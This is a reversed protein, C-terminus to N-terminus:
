GQILGIVNGDGGPVTNTRINTRINTRTNTMTKEM